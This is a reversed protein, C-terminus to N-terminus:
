LDVRRGGVNRRGGSPVTGNSEILYALRDLEEEREWTLGGDDEWRSTEVAAGVPDTKPRPSSSSAAM